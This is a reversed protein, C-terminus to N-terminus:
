ALMQELCALQRPLPERWLWGVDIWLGAMVQSELRGETYPAVMYPASPDQPLIHQYLTQQEPDVAWYEPVRHERYNAAKTRLDYNRTRPSIMEIVLMPAGSFYQEELQDLQAAAVVFIDPEYDLGPRLRAVAPGNLVEGLNRAEM